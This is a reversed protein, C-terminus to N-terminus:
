PLTKRSASPRSLQVSSQSHGFLLMLTHPAPFDGKRGRKRAIGAAAETCALFEPLSFRHPTPGIGPLASIAASSLCQGVGATVELRYLGEGAGQCLAPM